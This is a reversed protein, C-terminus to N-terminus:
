CSIRSSSLMRLSTTLLLGETLLSQNDKFEKYLELSLKAMAEGAAGDLLKGLSFSIRPMGKAKQAILKAYTAGLILFSTCYIFSEANIKLALICISMRDSHRCCKTM